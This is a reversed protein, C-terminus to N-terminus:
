KESQSPLQQFGIFTERILPIGGLQDAADAV